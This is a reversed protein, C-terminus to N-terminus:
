YISSKLAVPPTRKLKPDTRMHAKRFFTRGFFLPTAVYSHRFMEYSDKELLGMRLNTPSVEPNIM